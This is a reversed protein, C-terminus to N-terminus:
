SRGFVPLASLSHPEGEACVGTRLAPVAALSAMSSSRARTGHERAVEREKPRVAALVPVRVRDRRLWERGWRVIRQVASRHVPLYELERRIAADVSFRDGRPYELRAYEAMGLRPTTRQAVVVAEPGMRMM